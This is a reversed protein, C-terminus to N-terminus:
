DSMWTQMRHRLQVLTQIYVLQVDYKADKGFTNIHDRCTCYHSLMMAFPSVLNESRTEKYAHARNHSITM